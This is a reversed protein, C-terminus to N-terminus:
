RPNLQRLHDWHFGLRALVGPRFNEVARRGRSWIRSSPGPRGPEQPRPRGVAQRREPGLVRARPRRRNLVPDASTAPWTAPSQLRWRLVEAGFLALQYTCYPGALVNTLDLVRIGAVPRDKM